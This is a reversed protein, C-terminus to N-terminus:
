LNTLKNIERQAMAKCVILNNEVYALVANQDVLERLTTKVKDMSWSLCQSTNDYSIYAQMEYKEAEMIFCFLLKASDSLDTRRLVEYFYEECEHKWKIYESEENFESDDTYDIM